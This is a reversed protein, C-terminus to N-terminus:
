TVQARTRIRQDSQNRINDRGERIRIQLPDIGLFVMAKRNRCRLEQHIQMAMEVIM